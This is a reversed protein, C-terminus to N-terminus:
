TKSLVLQIVSGAADFRVTLGPYSWAEADEAGVELRASAGEGVEALGVVPARGRQDAEHDEAPQLPLEGIDDSMAM